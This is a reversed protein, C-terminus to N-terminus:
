VHDHLALNPLRILAHDPVPTHIQGLILMSSLDQRPTYTEPPILITTRDLEPILSFDKSTNLRTMTIPIADTAELCTRYNQYSDCLLYNLRLLTLSVAFFSCLVERIVKILRKSPQIRM